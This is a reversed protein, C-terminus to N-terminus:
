LPNLLYLNFLAFIVVILMIILISLGTAMSLAVRAKPSTGFHLNRLAHPLYIFFLIFQSTAYIPFPSRINSGSDSLSVTVVLSLLSAIVHIVAILQLSVSITNLFGGSGGFMRFIFYIISSILLWLVFVIIVLTPLELLPARNPTVSQIVAGLFISIFIFSILKPNLSAPNNHKQSSPSSIIESQPQNSLTPQFYLSPKQLTQVFASFYDSFYQPLLTLIKEIDM